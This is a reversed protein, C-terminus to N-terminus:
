QEKLIFIANQMIHIIQKLDDIEYVLFIDNENFCGDRIQTDEMPYSTGNEFMDDLQAFCIESSDGAIWQLNQFYFDNYINTEGKVCLEQFFWKQGKCFIAGPPLQLFAKRTYIKM